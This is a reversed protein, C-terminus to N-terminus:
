QLAPNQQKLTAWVLPVYQPSQQLAVVSALGHAGCAANVATPAILGATVAATVRPMLQEFTAPDATPIAPASPAAPVEPAAPPFPWPQSAIGPAPVNSLSHVRARLEAEVSAVLEPAVEKKMRWSGDKIKAKSGAHIREDWPLGNKDLDVAAALNATPPAAPMASPPVSPVPPVPATPTATLTIATTGEPAIPLPVAGAISPAGAPALPASAGFVAAPDAIPALGAAQTKSIDLGADAAHCQGDGACTKASVAGLLTQLLPVAAAVDERNTLDIELKM